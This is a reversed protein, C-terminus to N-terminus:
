WSVSIRPVIDFCLPLHLVVRLSTGEILVKSYVCLDAEDTVSDHESFLFHGYGWM